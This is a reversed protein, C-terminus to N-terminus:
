DLLQFNDFFGDEEERKLRGSEGGIIGIYAHTDTAFYRIVGGGGKKGGASRTEEFVVEQAKHGAWRVSRPESAKGGSDKAFSSRMDDMVTDRQAATSGSSFKFVFVGVTKNGGLTGSMHITMSEVGEKLAPFSSSKPTEPYYAKFKDEKSTYEVWGKPVAAKGGGVLAYIGYGIGGLVLIGGLVIAVILGAGM